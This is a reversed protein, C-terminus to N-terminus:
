GTSVCRDLTLRAMDVAVVLEHEVIAVLTMLHLKRLRCVRVMHGAVEVMITAWAM